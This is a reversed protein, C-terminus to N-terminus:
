RSKIDSNRMFSGDCGFNPSYDCYLMIMGRADLNACDIYAFKLANSLCNKSPMKGRWRIFVASDLFASLDEAM